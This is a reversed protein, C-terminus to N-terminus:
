YKVESKESHSVLMEDADGNIFGFSKMGKSFKRRKWPNNKMIFTLMKRIIILKVTRM